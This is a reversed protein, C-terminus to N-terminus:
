YTSLRVHESVIVYMQIFITDIIYVLKLVRMRFGLSDVICRCMSSGSQDGVSSLSGWNKKAMKALPAEMQHVTDSVVVQM